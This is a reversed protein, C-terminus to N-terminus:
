QSSVLHVSQGLSEAGDGQDAGHSRCGCLRIVQAEHAESIGFLGVRGGHLPQEVAELGCIPESDLREAKGPAIHLLVDEQAGAGVRKRVDGLEGLAPQRRKGAEVLQDVEVGDIPLFIKSAM